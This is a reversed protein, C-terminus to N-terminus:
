TLLRYLNTRCYIRGKVGFVSFSFTTMLALKSCMVRARSLSLSLSFSLGDCHPSARLEATDYFNM